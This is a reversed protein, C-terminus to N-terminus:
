KRINKLTSRVYNYGPQCGLVFVMRLIDKTDDPYANNDSSNDTNNNSHVVVPVNEDGANTRSEKKKIKTGDSTRHSTNQTPSQCKENPVIEPTRRAQRTQDLAKITRENRHKDRMFVPAHSVARQVDNVDLSDKLLDYVSLIGTNLDDYPNINDQDYVPTAASNLIHKPEMAQVELTLSNVADTLCKITKPLEIPEPLDTFSTTPDQFSNTNCDFINMNTKVLENNVPFKSFIDENQISADFDLVMEGLPDCLFKLCRLLHELGAITKIDFKSRNPYKSHKSNLHFDVWTKARTLNEGADSFTQFNYFDEMGASLKHLPVTHILSRHLHMTNYDVCNKIVIFPSLYSRAVSKLVSWGGQEYFDRKLETDFYMAWCLYADHRFSTNRKYFCNLCMEVVFASTAFIHEFVKLEKFEHSSFTSCLYALFDSPGDCYAMDTYEFQLRYVDHFIAQRCYVAHIIDNNCHIEGKYGCYVEDYIAKPLPDRSVFGHDIFLTNFLEFSFVQISLDVAMKLINPFEIISLFTVWSRNLLIKPLMLSFTASPLIPLSPVKGVTYKQHWRTVRLM